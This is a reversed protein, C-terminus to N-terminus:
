LVIHLQLYEKDDMWCIGISHSNRHAVLTFSVPLQYPLVDANYGEDPILFDLKYTFYMM